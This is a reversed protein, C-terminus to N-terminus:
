YKSAAGASMVRQMGAFDQLDFDGDNDFDVQKCAPSEDMGEACEVMAAFDSLDVVGDCDADGIGSEYAGKDVRGCLVRTHGDLDKDNLFTVYDPDGADISPSDTRLRFDYTSRYDILVPSVFLPDEGSVDTGEFDGTWGQVTSYQLQALHLAEIQATEDTTVDPGYYPDVRNGWFVSDDITTGEVAIMGGALSAATNHAITCGSIHLNEGGGALGGAYGEAYNQALLSNRLELNGSYTIASLGGGQDAHNELLECRDITVPGNGILSGIGVGGGLDAYNSEFTSETLLLTNGDHFLGGGQSGSNNEFHCHHITSTGRSIVGGGKDGADNKIFRSSEMVITSDLTHLGGGRVSAINNEFDCDTITAPFARIIAGGGYTAENHVFQCGALQISGEYVYLGGGEDDAINSEFATDLIDLNAWGYIGGGASAENNTLTCAQLCLNLSYAYIAGGYRATNSELTCGEFSITPSNYSYGSGGFAGGNGSQNDRFLCDNLTVNVDTVYIAGGFGRSQNGVFDVEMIALNGPVEVYDFSGFFLAGGSGASSDVRGAFNDAFKCRAVTPTSDILYLGGGTAQMVGDAQGGRITFGDLLGSDGIGIASVVHYVNDSRNAFGPGDNGLLDGSLITPHQEWNRHSADSEDGVFGGLLSVGEGLEFTASRADAFVTRRSPRYTGEAVWVERAQGTLTPPLDLAKSLDNFANSWDTGDGQPPGDARVYVVRKECQDPVGNADGDTLNGDSLGCEDPAGDGNCDTQQGQALEFEDPVLNHNCDAQCDDPVYNSDVDRSDGKAIDVDDAVANGNCDARFAIFELAFKSDMEGSNAMDGFAVIGNPAIYTRHLRVIGDVSVTASRNALVDLRYTHFDDTTSLFFTDEDDGWGIRDVDFYIMQSRDVGSGLTSEPVFSPYFVIASDYPDHPITVELVRLRFELSYPNEQMTPASRYFLSVADVGVTDFVLTGDKIQVAPTDPYGSPLWGQDQPLASATLLVIDALVVAPHRYLELAIILVITKKGTRWLRDLSSSVCIGPQRERGRSHDVKM